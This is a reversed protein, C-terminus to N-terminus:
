YGSKNILYHQLNQLNLRLYLTTMKMRTKKQISSIEMVTTNNVMELREIGAPIM